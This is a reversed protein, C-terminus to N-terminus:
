DSRSDKVLFTGALLLMGLILLHQILAAALNMASAVIALLICIYGVITIFKLM